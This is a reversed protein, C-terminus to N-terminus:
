PQVCPQLSRGVPHVAEFASVANQRQMPTVRIVPDGPLEARALAAVIADQAGTAAGYDAPDGNVLIAFAVRHGNASTVYGALCAAINLSGTKAHANGEAPSGRLRERLTGDQGAVALSDYLTRFDDRQRLAGLLQVLGTATLRDDYSLGSGDLVRYSGAALGAAALTAATLQAGSETSGVGYFDRGLGKLLTEAFFNDSAKNMHQLLEGLPASRQAALLRAGAPVRGTGPRGSVKIGVAKLARGLLRAAHTAPAAVRKDEQLSENGTLASLRGCEDELGPKWAAVTRRRDFWSEDGLIRGRVQRVGLGRLRRAFREFSATKLHLAGRQYARTSLSPDGYGKLYVDGYLVGQYVPVNPVYLETTFRHEPGWYVLAAAATALKLNSAPTLPTTAARAYVRRAADLDWVYVGTGPGAVGNKELAATIAAPAGAAAPAPRLSAGAAAVVLLAALALVLRPARM